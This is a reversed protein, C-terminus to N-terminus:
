SYVWKIGSTNVIYQASLKEGKLERWPPQDTLVAYVLPTCKFFVHVGPDAHRIADALEHAKDETM